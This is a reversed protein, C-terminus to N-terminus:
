MLKKAQLKQVETQLTRVYQIAEDLIFATDTSEGGPIVGRLLRLISKIKEKRSQEMPQQPPPQRSSLKKQWKQNNASSSSSVEDPCVTGLTASGYGMPGLLGAEQCAPQEKVHALNSDEGVVKQSFLEKCTKNGSTATSRTDDDVYDEFERKRKKSTCMSYGENNTPYATLSNNRTLDSPSHGTSSVEDEDSSLLAELDETNEHSFCSHDPSGDLCNADIDGGVIQRDALLPTGCNDSASFISDMAASDPVSHANYCPSPAALRSICAPFSPRVLSPDKGVGYKESIPGLNYRLTTQLSSPLLATFESMMAPHFIMKRKSGSHDIMVFRRECLESLQLDLKNPQAQSPKLICGSVGMTGYGSSNHRSGLYGNNLLHIGGSAAPPIVSTPPANSPNIRAAGNRVPAQLAENAPHFLSSAAKANLTSFDMIHSASSQNTEGTLKCNLSTNWVDGKGREASGGGIEALGVFESCQIVMKEISRDM